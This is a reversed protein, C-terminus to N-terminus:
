RARRDVELDDSEIPELSEDEFGHTADFDPVYTGGEESARPRRGMRYPWLACATVPCLRVEKTSGGSCDLCKARIARMPTLAAESREPPVEDRDESRLRAYPLPADTPVPEIQLPNM